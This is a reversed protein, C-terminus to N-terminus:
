GQEALAQKVQDAVDAPVWDTWVDDNNLFWLAAEEFTAENEAMWGEAAVQTGAAFDWKRLFEVVEPARTIM